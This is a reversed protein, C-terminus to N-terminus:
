SGPDAWLCWVAFLPEPGSRMAHRVNPVNYFTGGMGPTFWDGEGQRFAGPSLVLYVEEPGHDHDPYRTHPALLSVGIWVDDRPELGGPGVIMANAHGDDFNASAAPGGQRRRWRLKPELARFREVLPLLAPAAAATELARPLVACVPLREGASAPVPRSEALAAFSRGISGAADPDLRSADLASRLATLFDHLVPDRAAM